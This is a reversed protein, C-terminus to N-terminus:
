MLTRMLYAYIEQSKDRWNSCITEAEEETPVNLSIEIISSGRERVVCHAIFEDKKAEYFDALTSVEERLEYKHEKLYELIDNKIADPIDSNFFELTERGADTIQFLSSNRVTESSVLGAEKIESIAQQVNFYNTYEKELIFGTMQANTLPFDVKDLIFLIMLKYLTLADSQM